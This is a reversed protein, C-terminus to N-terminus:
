AIILTETLLHQRALFWAACVQYVQGFAGAGLKRGLKGRLETAFSVHFDTGEAAFAAERESAPVLKVGV